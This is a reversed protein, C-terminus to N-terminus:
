RTEAGDDVQPIKPTARWEAEFRVRWLELIRYFADAELWVDRLSAPDHRYDEKWPRLRFAILRVRDGVDFHLVFSSDDFAEDGDPAWLLRDSRFFESFETRSLGWFMKDRQAPAYEAERFADAIKGGDPETAFPATHTGRRALREVVADFSCALLTAEPDRVGYSRGGIHIVFFGWARLGLREYAKTIGSEIAFLSSDGAIM